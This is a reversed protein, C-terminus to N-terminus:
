KVLGHHGLHNLGRTEGDGQGAAYVLTLREPKGSRLFRRELASTLDEPHCIGVFGGVALTSDDQILAIADDVDMLKQM